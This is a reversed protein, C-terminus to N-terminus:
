LSSAPDYLVWQSAPYIHRNKEYWKRELIKGVGAEDVDIINEGEKERKLRLIEGASGKAEAIILDYFSVFHPLIMDGKVFM